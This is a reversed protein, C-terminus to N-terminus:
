KYKPISRTEECWSNSQFHSTDETFESIRSVINLTTIVHAGFAFFHLRCLEFRNYKTKSVNSRM